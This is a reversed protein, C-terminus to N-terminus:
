RPLRHSTTSSVGGSKTWASARGAGAEGGAVAPDSVRASGRPPEQVSIERPEVPLRRCPPEGSGATRSRALPLARRGRTGGVM